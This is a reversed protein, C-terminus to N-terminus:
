NQEHRLNRRIAVAGRSRVNHQVLGRDADRLDGPWLTQARLPDVIDSRDIECMARRGPHKRQERDALRRRARLLLGHDEVPYVGAVERHERDM